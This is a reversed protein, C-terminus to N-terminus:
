PAYLVIFNIGNITKDSKKIDIPLLSKLTHGNKYGGKAPYCLEDVIQRKPYLLNGYLFRGQDDEIPIYIKNPIVKEVITKNKDRAGCFIDFSLIGIRVDDIYKTQLKDGTERRRDQIESADPYPDWKWNICHIFPTITSGPENTPYLGLLNIIEIDQIAEKVYMWLPKEDSGLSAKIERMPNQYNKMFYDLM